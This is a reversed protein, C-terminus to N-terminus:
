GGTSADIAQSWEPGSLLDMIEEHTYPGEGTMLSQVSAPMDGDWKVFTKTEDVSYRMTEPATELVEDFDILALEDASFILYNRDDFM